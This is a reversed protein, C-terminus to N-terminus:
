SFNGDKEGSTLLEAAAAIYVRRAIPILLGQFENTQKCTQFDWKILRYLFLFLTFEM